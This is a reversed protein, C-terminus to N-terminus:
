YKYRRLERVGHHVYHLFPDIRAALVDPNLFLYAEPDFDAPVQNRFESHEFQLVSMAMSNPVPASEIHEADAGLERALLPALASLGQLGEKALRKYCDRVLVGEGVNPPADYHYTRGARKIAIRELILLEFMTRIERTACIPDVAQLLGTFMTTWAERKREEPWDHWQKHYNEPHDRRIYLAQGHRLFPGWRLLKALWVFVESLGRFEDIRILGAQEVAAKRMLGRVPAPQKEEIFRRMRAYVGGDLEPAIEIDARGGVWQCDAYVIAADPRKEALGLLKEFFDPTTADDHQRYCFYDSIPQQLLWNINGNWDLRQNQVVLRFRSDDLFPRCADATVQDNGDVSILVEFDKHTQNQLSALAEGIHDAGRYVPVGVTIHRNM